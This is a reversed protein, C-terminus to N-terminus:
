ASPSMGASAGQSPKPHQRELIVHALKYFVHHASQEDSEFDQMKRLDPDFGAASSTFHENFARKVQSKLVDNLITPDDDLAYAPFGSDDILYWKVKNIDVNQMSDAIKQLADSDIRSGHLAPYVYKRQFERADLNSSVQYRFAYEALIDAPMENCLAVSELYSTRHYTNHFLTDVLMTRASGLVGELSSSSRPTQDLEGQAANRLNEDTLLDKFTKRFTDAEVVATTLVKKAIEQDETQADRVRLLEGVAQQCLKTELGYNQM